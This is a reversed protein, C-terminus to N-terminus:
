LAIKTKEMLEKAFTPFTPILFLIIYINIATNMKVSERYLTERISIEEGFDLNYFSIRFFQVSCLGISRTLEKYENRVLTELFIIQQQRRNKNQM